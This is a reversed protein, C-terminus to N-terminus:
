CSHVDNVDHEHIDDDKNDNVDDDIGRKSFGSIHGLVETNEGIHWLLLFFSQTVSSSFPQTICYESESIAKVVAMKLFVPDM